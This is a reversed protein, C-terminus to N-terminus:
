NILIITTRSYKHRTFDFGGDEYLYIVSMSSALLYRFFYFTNGNSVKAFDGSYVGGNECRESLLLLASLAGYNSGGRVTATEAGYARHVSSETESFRFLIVTM